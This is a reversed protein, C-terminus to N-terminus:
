GMNEFNYGFNIQPDQTRIGAPVSFKKGIKASSGSNKGISISNQTTAHTRLPLWNLDSPGPNSDRDAGEM